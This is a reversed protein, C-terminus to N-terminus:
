LHGEITLPAISAVAQFRPLGELAVIRAPSCELCPSLLHSNSLGSPLLGQALM